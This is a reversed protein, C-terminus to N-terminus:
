YEATRIANIVVINRHLREQYYIGKLFLPFVIQQEKLHPLENLVFCLCMLQISHPTVKLGLLASTVHHECEQQKFLLLCLLCHLCHPFSKVTKLLM